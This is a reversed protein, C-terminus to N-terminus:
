KSKADIIAKMDPDKGLEAVRESSIGDTISKEFGGVVKALASDEELSLERLTTIFRRRMVEKQASVTVDFRQVAFTALLETLQAALLLHLNNSEIMSGHIRGYLDITRVLHGHVISSGGLQGAAKNVAITGKLTKTASTTVKRAAEALQSPNERPNISQMLELNADRAAENTKLDNLMEQVQPARKAIDTDTSGMLRGARDLIDQETSKIVELGKAYCLLAEAINNVGIQIISDGSYIPEIARGHEAFSTHLPKGIAQRGLNVMRDRWNHEATPHINTGWNLARVVNVGKGLGERDGKMATLALETNLLHLFDFANMNRLFHQLLSSQIPSAYGEEITIMADSLQAASADNAPILDKKDGRENGMTEALQSHIGETAANIHARYGLVRGLAKIQIPTLARDTAGVFAEDWQFGEEFGEQITRIGSKPGLPNSGLDIEMPTEDPTEMNDPRRSRRTM